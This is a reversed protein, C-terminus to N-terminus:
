QLVELLRKDAEMLRDCTSQGALPALVKAISADRSRQSKALGDLTANTADLRTKTDAALASIATNQADVATKLTVINGACVANSTRLAVVRDTLAKNASSLRVVEINAAILWAVLVGALIVSVHSKIWTIM